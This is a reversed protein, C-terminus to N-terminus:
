AWSEGTKFRKGVQGLLDDLEKEHQALAKRVMALCGFYGVADRTNDPIDQESEIEHKLRSIKMCIMFIIGDIVTMVDEGQIANYINVTRQYDELPHSYANQRDGTILDYAETLVEAGATPNQEM